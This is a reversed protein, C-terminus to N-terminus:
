LGGYESQRHTHAVTHIHIWAMHTHTHPQMNYLKTRDSAISFMMDESLELELEM